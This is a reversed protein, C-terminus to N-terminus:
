TIRKYSYDPAVEYHLSETQEVTEAARAPLDIALLLVTGLLLIKSGQHLLAGRSMKSTDSNMVFGGESRRTLIRPGWHSRVM